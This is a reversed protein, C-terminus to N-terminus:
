AASSRGFLYVRIPAEFEAPDYGRDILACDVDIVLRRAWQGPRVYGALYGVLSVKQNFDLPMAIRKLDIAM